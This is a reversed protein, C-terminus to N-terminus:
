FIKDKLEFYLTAEKRCQRVDRGCNEKDHSCDKCLDRNEIHIKRYHEVVEQLDECKKPNGLYEHFVKYDPLEPDKNIDRVGPPKMMEKAKKIYLKKLLEASIDNELVSM